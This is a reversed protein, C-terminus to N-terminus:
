NGSAWCRRNGYECRECLREEHPPRGYDDKRKKKSYTGEKLKICRKVAHIVMNELVDPPFWLRNEADCGKCKQMWARAIRQNRLDFTLWALNSSWSKKCRKCRKCVAKGHVSQFSYRKPIDQADIPNDFANNMVDRILRAM